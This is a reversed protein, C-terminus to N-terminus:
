DLNKLDINRYGALNKLDVIKDDFSPEKIENMFDKLDTHNKLWVVHQSFENPPYTGCNTILAFGISDVYGVNKGLKVFDIM